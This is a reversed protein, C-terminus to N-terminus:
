YFIGIIQRNRSLSGFFHKSWRKYIRKSVLNNFCVFFFSWCSNCIAMSKRGVIVDGDDMESMEAEIAFLISFCIITAFLTKNIANETHTDITHRNTHCVILPPFFIFCIFFLYYHHLNRWVYKGWIRAHTRTVSSCLGLNINCWMADCWMWESTNLWIKRLWSLSFQTM